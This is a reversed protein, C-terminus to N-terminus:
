IVVGTVIYRDFIRIAVFCFIIRSIFVDSFIVCSVYAIVDGTVDDLVAPVAEMKFCKMPKGTEDAGCEADTGGECPKPCEEVLHKYSRACWTASPKKPLLACPSDGWCKEGSPCEADTGGPCAQHCSTANM